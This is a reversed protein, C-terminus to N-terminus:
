KNYRRMQHGITGKGRQSKDYAEEDADPADPIGVSPRHKLSAEVIADLTGNTDDPTPSLEGSENHREASDESAEEAFEGGEEQIHEQDAFKQDGGRLSQANFGDMQAMLKDLLNKKISTEMSTAM